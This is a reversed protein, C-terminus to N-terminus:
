KENDEDSSWTDQYFKFNTTNSDKTREEKMQSKAKIYREYHDNCSWVLINSDNGGSYLEQRYPNYCCCSVNNYHGRLTSLQRGTQIEYTAINGESPVFVYDSLGGSSLSFKYGKSSTNYIKGFNVLTNKGNSADWLRLENDTGYSILFRGDETFRIGSVAGNHSTCSRAKSASTHLEGNYQDLAAVFGSARRIDWIFIRNDRSGTALTYEEAPSWQVTYVSSRHGKLSHTMSGSKLDCLVVVERRSGVAVLYHQTAIPSMHHNYIPKQINFEEVVDLNNTDWVKLLSDMGSSLFMGTDHPYWQITEVSNKHCAASSRDVACVPQFESLVDNTADDLDYLVILGESGSTLLYKGEALELDLCNIGASFKRKFSCTKSLEMSLLRHAAQIRPLISPSELGSERLRLHHLM